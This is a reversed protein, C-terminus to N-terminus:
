VRTRVNRKTIKQLLVEILVAIFVFGILVGMVHEAKKSIYILALVMAIVSFLAALIVLFKSAKTEKILKLHGLHTVTHILLISISGITAIESLDFLLLSIIILVGSM